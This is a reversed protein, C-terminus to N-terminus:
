AEKASAQVAASITHNQGPSSSSDAGADPPSGYEALLARLRQRARHIRVRAAGASIGLVLGISRTDDLNEWAVLRLVEQDSETLRGLATAIFQGLIVGDAPDPVKEARSVAKLRATLLNRRRSARLQDRVAYRAIAYFWPLLIEADPRADWRRWAVMFTDSVVDCAWDEDGLRRLAFRFVMPACRDFAEAFDSARRPDDPEPCEM